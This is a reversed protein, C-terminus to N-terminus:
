VQVFGNVIYDFGNGQMSASAPTANFANGNTALGNLVASDRAGSGATVTVQQFYNVVISFGTGSFTGSSATPSTTTSTFSNTGGADSLNAVDRGNNGSNAVVHGFGTATNQYGTGSITAASPSATFTNVAGADPDGFENVTDTSTGSLLATGVGTGTILYGTGIYQFSGAYLNATVPQGNGSISVTALGGHSVYNISDYQATSYSQTLGDLTVNFHTSDTFQVAFTDNGGTGALFLTDAIGPIEMFANNPYVAFSAVVNGGPVGDGSVLPLSGGGDLPNGAADALADSISLAYQDPFLGKQGPPLQLTLAITAWAQGDSTVSQQTVSASLIPVVGSSRGTLVFNGPTDAISALLAQADPFNSPDQPGPEFINITLGTATPTSSPNAAFLNYTPASTIQIPAVVSGNVIGGVTPGQTDIFIDFEQGPGAQDPATSSVNGAMDTAVVWLQRTGDRTFFDPDNLDVTSTLSWQGDTPAGTGVATAITEGLLIEQGAQAGANALAYVAVTSDTE